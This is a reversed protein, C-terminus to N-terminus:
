GAQTKTVAYEIRDRGSQKARYLALDAQHILAALTESTRQKGSVGISLSVKLPGSATEIPHSRMATQIRKAIIEVTQDVNAEPAIILFEEGGYRGVIDINRVSKSLIRGVAQIVEDGTAHSYTDNIKKFWDIDAIIVSFPRGHRECRKLEDEGM